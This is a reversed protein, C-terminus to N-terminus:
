DTLVHCIKFTSLGVQTQFVNSLSGSVNGVLPLMLLHWRDAQSFECALSDHTGPISLSEITANDGFTSMWSALPDTSQSFAGLLPAGASLHQEMQTSDLAYAYNSAMVLLSLITCSFSKFPMQLLPGLWTTTLALLSRLWSRM